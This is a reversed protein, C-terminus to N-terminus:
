EWQKLLSMEWVASRDVESHWSPHCPLHLYADTGQPHGGQIQLHRDRRDRGARPGIHGGRLHLRAPLHHHSAGTARGTLVEPQEADSRAAPFDRGSFTKALLKLLFSAACATTGQLPPTRPQRCM